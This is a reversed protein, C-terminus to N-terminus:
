RGPFCPEWRNAAIGIRKTCTHRTGIQAIPMTTRRADDNASRAQADVVGLRRDAERLLKAGADSPLIGGSFDARLTRRHASAFPLVDSCV